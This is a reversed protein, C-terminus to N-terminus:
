AKNSRVLCSSTPTRRSTACVTALSATSALQRSFIRCNPIIGIRTVIVVAVSKSVAVPRYSFFVFVCVCVRKNDRHPFLITVARSADM